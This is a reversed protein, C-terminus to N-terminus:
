VSDVDPVDPEDDLGGEFEDIDVGPVFGEEGAVKEPEKAELVEASLEGIQRDIGVTEGREQAAAIAKAAEKAAKLKAAAEEEAKIKEKRKIETEVMFDSLTGKYDPPMPIWRKDMEKEKMLDAEFDILEQLLHNESVVEHVPQDLSDQILIKDPLIRCHLACYM